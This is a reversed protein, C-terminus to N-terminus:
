SISNFPPSYDIRGAVKNLAGPTLELAMWSEGSGFPSDLDKALDPKFGFRPYYNPHGLVLVIKHGRDRCIELGTEVLQTGIGQRQHGPLVAMPALSLAPLEEQQTKITVHSFLIHGVVVGGTEAVLSLEVFDDARLADVLDAEADGNFAAKNVERIAPIDGTVEPRIEIPM